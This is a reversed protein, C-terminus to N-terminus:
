NLMRQILFKIEDLIKDAEELSPNYQIQDNAEEKDLEDLYRELIGLWHNIQESLHQDNELLETNAELILEFSDLQLQLNKKHLVGHEYM